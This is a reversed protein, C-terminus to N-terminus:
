DRFIASVIKLSHDRVRHERPYREEKGKVTHAPSLIVIMLSSSDRSAACNDGIGAPIKEGVIQLLTGVESNGDRDAIDRKPQAAMGYLSSEAGTAHDGHIAPTGSKGVNLNFARSSHSTAPLGSDGKLVHVM